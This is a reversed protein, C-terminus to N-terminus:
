FIPRQAANPMGTRVPAFPQTVGIGQDLQVGAMCTRQLPEVWRDRILSHSM